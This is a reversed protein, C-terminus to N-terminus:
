GELYWGSTDVFNTMNTPNPKFGKLKTTKAIIAVNTTVAITPLDDYLIKQMEAAYQKREEPVLTNELKAFVEDLAPNSYGQGNNAGGTGFFVSYVPDASTIWRGYYLDYDGKYRSDRFAVGTKNDPTVEIGVAKMMAILVQQAIEDDTRGAQALCRFSLRNGDKARIGDDGVTWGAADLAAKAAEPDYADVPVDPDYLGEFVPLVVSKISLPYGGAAKIMTERDIAQAFARRVTLDALAPNKFNFDLHQWSLITNKIIELGEIGELQKAQQYPVSYAFQVEGSRLQTVLTNSDTIIKFVISDLYPLAAGDDAKRWYNPNKVIEVYQGREFTTVMFPGTGLPKENYVDTNLDKGELAHKPLIGFTFLTSKFDPAVTNYNVVATLDDPTDISDIDETGDKSEAIFDPNKVAEWTFKVDASTFPTGDHWTVGPRLKYTVKMTKKDGSLVIGGNELTPVETALVPVYEAHENPAVLGEVVAAQVDGLYGTSYVNLTDIDYALGVDLTGGRVQAWAPAAGAMIRAMTAALAGGGLIRGFTRRDVTM